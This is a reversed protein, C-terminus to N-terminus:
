LYTSIFIHFGILPQIDITEELIYKAFTNLYIRFHVWEMGAKIKHKQCLAICETYM